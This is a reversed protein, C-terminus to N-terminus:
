FYRSLKSANIVYLLFVLVITAAVTVFVTVVKKPLFKGLAKAVVNWFRDLLHGIASM